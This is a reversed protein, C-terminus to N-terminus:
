AVLTLSLLGVSIGFGLLYGIIVQSLTHQKLKLRSYGVFGAILFAIILVHNIDTNFKYAIGYLAGTLGGIGIM